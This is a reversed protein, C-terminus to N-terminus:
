SRLLKEVYEATVGGGSYRRTHIPYLGKLAEDDLYGSTQRATRTPRWLSDHVGRDRKSLWVNCIFLSLLIAAALSWWRGSCWISDILGRPRAKENLAQLAPGLIKARKASSLPRPEFQNLWQEM